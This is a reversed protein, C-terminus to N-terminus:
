PAGPGRVASWSNQALPEKIGIKFLGYAFSTLFKSNQGLFQLRLGENLTIIFKINYRLCYHLGQYLAQM